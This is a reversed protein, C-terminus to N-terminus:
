RRVHGRAALDLSRTRRDRRDVDAFQEFPDAGALERGSRPWAGRSASRPRRRGADARPRLHGVREFGDFDAVLFEGGWLTGDAGYGLGDFALGLVPETRGHEVM